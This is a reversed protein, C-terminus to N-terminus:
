YISVSAFSIFFMQEDNYEEFGPLRDDPKGKKQRLKRYAEFVTHLGTTDAINEGRTKRGFSGDQQIILFHNMELLWLLLEKLFTQIITSVGYGPTDDDYTPETVGMYENFQDLFCEARKYYLEIMDNSIKTKNGDKGM